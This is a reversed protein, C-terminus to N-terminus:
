KSTENKFLNLDSFIILSWVSASIGLVLAVVSATTSEPILGFLKIPDPIQLYYAAASYLGSLLLLNLIAFRITRDSQHKLWRSISPLSINLILLTITLIYATKM